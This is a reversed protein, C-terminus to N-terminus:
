LTQYSQGHPGALAVAHGNVAVITRGGIEVDVQEGISPIVGAGENSIWTVDPISSMLDAFEGRQAAPLYNLVASHFVVM